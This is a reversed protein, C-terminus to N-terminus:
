DIEANTLTKMTAATAAGIYAPTQIEGHPTSIVGTRALTDALKHKIDFTLAKTHQTMKVKVTDKCILLKHAAVQM